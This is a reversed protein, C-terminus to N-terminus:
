FRKKLIKSKKTLSQSLIWGSLIATTVGTGPLTWHGSLYLNKVPTKQKLRYILAQEPTNAWGYMSGQFSLSFNNLDQPTFIKKVVIHKSLNKVKKEVINIMEDAIQEKAMRWDRETQWPFFATLILTSHGPPALNTEIHTPSYASLCSLIGKTLKEFNLNFDLSEYFFYEHKDLGNQAIDFDLGLFLKFPGVAPSLKFLKNMYKKPLLDPNILKTFTEIADANSIVTNAFIKEGNELIVGKAQNEEIIIAQVASELLVKGQKQEIAQVFVDTVKQSSGKPYYTHEGYLGSMCAALMLGSIKDPPLGLYPWCATFLAALHKDKTIIQFFKDATKRSNFLWFLGTLPYLIKKLVGIKDYDSRKVAQKGQFIRATIMVDQRWAIMLKFFRRIDKKNGPSYKLMIKELAAYNGPLPIECDPLVLVVFPDIKFFELKDKIQYDELVRACNGREDIGTLQHVALDFTYGGLNFASCNGGAVRNRECVVVRQGAQALGLAASLGGMGSGIIVADAIQKNETM